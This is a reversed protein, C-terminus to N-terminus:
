CFFLKHDFRRLVSEVFTCIWTDANFIHRLTNCDFRRLISVPRTCLLTDANCLYRLALNCDFRRFISVLPVSGLTQMLTSIQIM